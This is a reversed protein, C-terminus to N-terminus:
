KFAIKKQRSRELAQANVEEQSKKAAKNALCHSYAMLFLAPSSYYNAITM